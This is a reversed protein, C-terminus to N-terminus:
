FIKFGNQRAVTLKKNLEYLGMSKDSITIKIIKKLSKPSNIIGYVIM